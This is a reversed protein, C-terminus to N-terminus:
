GQPPTCRRGTRKRRYGSIVAPARRTRQLIGPLGGTGYVLLLRCFLLIWSRGAMALVVGTLGGVLVLPLLALLLLSGLIRLGLELGTRHHGYHWQALVANLPLALVLLAGAELLPGSDTWEPGALWVVAAEGAVALLLAPPVALLLGLSLAQVLTRRRDSSGAPYRAIGILSARGLAMSTAGAILDVVRRMLMLAGLGATGFVAAVFSRLVIQELLLVANGAGIGAAAALVPRIGGSAFRRGPKWGSRLYLLSSTSVSLSLNFVVLSWVGWGALAGGGASIGAFMAAITSALAVDRSRRHHLLWARAPVAVTEALVAPVLAAVIVPLLPETFIHGLLWGGGLIAPILAVAFMALARFCSSLLPDPLESRALLATVWGDRLLLTAVAIVMAALGMLGYAEPGLLPALALFVLGRVTEPAMLAVSIWSADRLLRSPRWSALGAIV